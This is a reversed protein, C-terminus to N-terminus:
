TSPGLINRIFTMATITAPEETYPRTIAEVQQQAESQARQIAELLAKRLQIEGLRLAQPTIRLDTVKGHADVTASLEGHRSSARAAIQALALQIQHNKCRWDQAVRRQEENWRDLYDM